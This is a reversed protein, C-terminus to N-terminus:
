KLVKVLHKVKDTQLFDPNKEIADLNDDKSLLGFISVRFGEDHAQQVQSKTVQDNKVVLGFLDFENALSLGDEFNSFALLQLDPRQTKFKELYERRKFEIFINDVMDYRDIIETLANLYTSIYSDPHNPEFLKLDLSFYYDKANELNGLLDDLSAVNYSTFIPDQYIADQVDDWDNEYIMGQLNTMEELTRDHYLILVSDSTMQVDIEVGEAGLHIANSVSEFSNIPFLSAIGMGAHGLPTIKNGNLNQIQGLDIENKNCSLISILLLITIFYNRM